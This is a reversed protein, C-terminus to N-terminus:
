PGPTQAQDIRVTKRCTKLFFFIFFFAAFSSNRKAFLNIVFLGTVRETKCGPVMANSSRRADGAAVGKKQNM